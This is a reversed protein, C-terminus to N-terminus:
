MQYRQLKYFSCLCCVLKDEEFAVFVEEVDENEVDKLGRVSGARGGLVFVTAEANFGSGDAAACRAAFVAHGTDAAM